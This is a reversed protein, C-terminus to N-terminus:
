LDLDANLAVEKEEVMLELFPVKWTVTKKDKSLKGNTNGIKPAHVIVTMYKDQFMAALMQKAQEQQAIEEQSKNAAPIKGGLKGSFRADKGSDEIRMGMKPGDKQEVDNFAANAEHYTKFDASVKCIIQEETVKRSVKINSAGKAQMEQKTDDFSEGCVETQALEQESKNQFEALMEPPLTMAFTTEVRTSKDASVWYEQTLDMCGELVLSTALLILIGFKKM